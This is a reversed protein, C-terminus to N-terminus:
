FLVAASVNHNFGKNITDMTFAYSVDFQVIHFTFGASFVLNQMGIYVSAWKMIDYQAGISYGFSKQDLKKIGSV